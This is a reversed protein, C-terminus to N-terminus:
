KNASIDIDICFIVTSGCDNTYQTSITVCVNGSAKSIYPETVYRMQTKSLLLFYEKSSQDTGTSAPAFLTSRNRFTRIPNLITSSIQRGTEHLVFACEVEPFQSLIENLKHDYESISTKLLYNSIRDAIEFYHEFLLKRTEFRSKIHNRLEIGTKISTHLGNYLISPDPNQPRGFYFGQVLDAGRELCALSEEKTEIGEAIVMVGIKHALKIFFDFLEQKYYELNIGSILSRDLKIIDPKMLPIRELNSHGCGMDDIAILFGRDRHNSIFNLLSCQDYVRSEIFEIVIRQPNIGFEDVLNVLKNSGLIQNNFISSDINVFLLVQSDFEAISTFCEVAKRRCLRDVELILGRRQAEEFLRNPSISMGNEPNVARALAELGIVRPEKISFIPQFHSTISEQELIVSLDFEVISENKSMRHSPTQETHDMFTGEKFKKDIFVKCIKRKDIGNM